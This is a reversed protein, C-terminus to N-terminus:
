KGGICYIARNSRLFLQGQSVAPTANFDSDDNLRNTGLVNLQPTASLICVGSHRTVAILKDGALVLSAYVPKGRGNQNQLPLRQEKEVSGTAANMCTAKGNEDVCYLRGNAILPSPVYSSQAVSWLVHTKTVDDKGGARIATTGRSEFGGMVYVIGNATAVCPCVNGAARVEAYWLLKGTDPNLGWVEGPAAVILEVKGDPLEVLTPTGFSLNLTAAEAKWIEKGTKKDLARISHSESSANVLVMNKYLLPSSGSGWGKRNSERGVETQWLQRGTLDFALVGSKGFFVYVAEGDSVPTSSAYGHEAIFGRYPDEPLVPAVDATWLIHGDKRNLCLLHRKLKSSDGTQGDVGFGTYCTIFVRDGVVIPSSTGPGPLSTKWALHNTDSWDAPVADHSIASGGLGRFQRWDEAHLLIPASITVLIALSRSFLM